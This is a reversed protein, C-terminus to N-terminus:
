EDFIKGIVEEAMEEPSKCALSTRFSKATALVYDTRPDRLEVTLELMYMTIDWTWKDIYTVVVDADVQAPREDIAVATLGRNNLAAAMLDEVGRNDPEFKLVLFSRLAALDTQPDIDSTLSTSVCGSLFLTSFVIPLFKRASISIM